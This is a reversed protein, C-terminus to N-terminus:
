NPVNVSPNHSGATDIVKCHSAHRWDTCHKFATLSRIRVSWYSALRVLANVALLSGFAIKLESWSPTRFPSIRMDCEPPKCLLELKHLQQLLEVDIGTELQLM